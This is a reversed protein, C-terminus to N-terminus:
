EITYYFSSYTSTQTDNEAKFSVNNVHMEKEGQGPHSSLFATSGGQSHGLSPPDWCTGHCVHRVPAHGSAGGPCGWWGSQSARCCRTHPIYCGCQCQHSTPNEEQCYLLCDVIKWLGQISEEMAWNVWPLAFRAGAQVFITPSEKTTDLAWNTSSLQPPMIGRNM